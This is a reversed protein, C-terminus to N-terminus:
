NASSELQETRVLLRMGHAAINLLNIEPNDLRIQISKSVIPSEAVDHQPGSLPLLRARLSNLTETTTTSTASAVTSASLRTARTM